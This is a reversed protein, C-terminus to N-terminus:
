ESILDWICKRCLNQHSVLALRVCAYVCNAVIVIYRQEDCACMWISSKYSVNKKVLQKM